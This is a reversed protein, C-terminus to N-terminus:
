QDGICVSFDWGWPLRIIVENGAIETSGLIQIEGAADSAPTQTSKKGKVPYFNNKDTTMEKISMKRGM